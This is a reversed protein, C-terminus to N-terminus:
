LPHGRTARTPALRPETGRRPAGPGTGPRQPHTRGNRAPLVAKLGQQALWARFADGDQSRDTILCPRPADTGAAVLARAQASDHRQGATVRLRLPRGRRDTLIHIPTRFGGRSRGLAPAGKNKPAGAASAHARGVTGVPWQRWPSGM